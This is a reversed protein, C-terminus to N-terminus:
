GNDMIKPIKHVQVASSGNKTFKPHVTDMMGSGQGMEMQICTSVCKALTKVMQTALAGTLTAGPPGMLGAGTGGHILVTAELGFKSGLCRLSSGIMYSTM